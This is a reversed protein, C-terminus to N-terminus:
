AEAAVRGRWKSPKSLSNYTIIACLRMLVRRVGQQLRTAHLCLAVVLHLSSSTRKKDALPSMRIVKYIDSTSVDDGTLGGKKEKLFQFLPDAGAGNVDVKSM